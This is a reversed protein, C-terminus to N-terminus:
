SKAKDAQRQAKEAAKRAAQAAREASKELKLKYDEREKELSFKTPDCYSIKIRAFQGDPLHVIAGNSVVETENGTETQIAGLTIKYLNARIEAQEKVSLKESM